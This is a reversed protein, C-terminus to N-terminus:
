DGRLAVAADLRTARRMPVYTAVLTAVLLVVITAAYAPPDVTGTNFLLSRILRAAAAGAACGVVIGVGAVFLSERLVLAAIMGDTAGLAKRVGLERTRQTVGYSVVGYMGIAALLVACFAFVGILRMPLKRGDLQSEIATEFSDFAKDGASGRDILRPDVAAVANRLAPVSRMGDRARIVLSGWPWTELTYPVYIEPVPLADQSAQHVDRIVGIVTGPLPQGFDPRAQSSRRVTLRQGVASQGPWYTRAMTENVVFSGGPSRVDNEDFWRGAALSMGMTALYTDSVTRYFVQRSATDSASRGETEVPTTIAASHFPAHNIFAADSVGPVARVAAILRTYLAAADSASPYAEAPTNIRLAILNRPTFGVDVAGVRRFSQVLLAAGVLLVLALAFQAAVLIRRGRADSRTGISGPSGARLTEAHEPRSARIAPWAGCLLVTVVCALLAVLLVRADMGLEEARPLLNSPLKRAIDIGFSAVLTGLVAGTLALVASETVLQRAIRWRSAGLAGRVALERTRGAPRALMLNAVNVCALLLVAAAAGALTLLMPETDGLVEDRIPRMAASWHAQEVPYTAALQESVTRLLAVARASDVGPRLRAVTRSDAHLGRRAVIEPHRYHSIPQWASAFAPYQAGAAV